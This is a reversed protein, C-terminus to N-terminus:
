RVLICFCIIHVMVVGLLEKSCKTPSFKFGRARLPVHSKGFSDNLVILLFHALSRGCDPGAVELRNLDMQKTKSRVLARGGERRRQSARKWRLRGMRGNRRWRERERMLEM